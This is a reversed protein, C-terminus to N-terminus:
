PTQHLATKPLDRQLSYDFLHKKVFTKEGRVTEHYIIEILLNKENYRYEAYRAGTLGTRVRSRLVGKELTSEVKATLEGKANYIHQTIGATHRVLKFSETPKGSLLRKGGALNGEKDYLYHWEIKAAGRVDHIMSKDLKGAKYQYRIEEALRGAADFLQEHVLLGKDYEYVSHGAPLDKPGYSYDARVLLGNDYTFRATERSTGVTVTERVPRVPLNNAKKYAELPDYIEPGAFASKLFGVICIAAFFRSVKM